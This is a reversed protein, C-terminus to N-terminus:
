RTLRTAVPSSARTMWDPCPSTPSGCRRTPSPRRRELPWLRLRLNTDYSVAVGAARACQIAAFVLDCASASIAQSIGSVHLVKATRILDGPLDRVTMRAAASGARLYTFAHGDEGHSVFYIGTPASGDVKVAGCDIGDARWQALLAEGFMDAGVAGAFAVRAGSRAAAIAVNSTDGGLGFLYRPDGKATQHNFEGLPEGLCVIDPHPM